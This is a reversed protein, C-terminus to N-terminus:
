DSGGAQNGRILFLFILELSMGHLNMNILVTYWEAFLQIDSMQTIHPAQNVQQFFM